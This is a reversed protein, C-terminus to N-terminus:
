SYHTLEFLSDSFIDYGTEAHRRGQDSPLKIRGIDNNQVLVWRQQYKHLCAKNRAPTAKSVLALSLGIVQHHKILGSSCQFVPRFPLASVDIALNLILCRNTDTSNAAAV